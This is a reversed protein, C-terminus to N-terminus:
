TNGLVAYHAPSTVGGAPLHAPATYRAAPDEGTWTPPAPDRARAMRQTPSRGDLSTHAFYNNVAMDASMWKAAATLSDSVALTPLGRAARFENVRGVLELEASDLSAGNALSPTMVVFLGVVALLSALARGEVRLVRGM